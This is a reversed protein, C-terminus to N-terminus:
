EGLLEEFRARYAPVGPRCREDEQIHITSAPFCFPPSPLREGYRPALSLVLGAGAAARRKNVRRRAFPPGRRRPARAKGGHCRHKVTTPPKLRRRPPRCRAQIGGRM